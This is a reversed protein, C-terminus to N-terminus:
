QTLAANAPHLTFYSVPDQGPDLLTIQGRARSGAFWPSYTKGDLMFVMVLKNNTMTNHRSTTM